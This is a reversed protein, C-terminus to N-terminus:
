VRLRQSNALTLAEREMSDLAVKQALLVDGTALYGDPAFCWQAVPRGDEDLQLVNM